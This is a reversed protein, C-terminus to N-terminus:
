SACYNCRGCFRSILKQRFHKGSVCYLWFNICNNFYSLDNALEGWFLARFYAVMLDQIQTMHNTGFDSNDSIAKPLNLIFFAASVVVLLITMHMMHPQRCQSEGLHNRCCYRASYIIILVNGSFIIFFPILIECMLEIVLLM